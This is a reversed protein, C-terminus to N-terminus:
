KTDEDDEDQDEEMKHYDNDEENIWKQVDNIHYEGRESGMDEDDHM